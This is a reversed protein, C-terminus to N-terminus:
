GQNEAKGLKIHPKLKVALFAALLIKVCDGPLFPVVCTMLSAAIGNHTLIIYWVTGFAYCLLVGPMMILCLRWFKNAAWKSLLGVVVACILYGIIYGGTPGALVAIGGSLKSFVPVGVAGLLIYATISVAAYKAGLLAGCLNVSFLALNIPILPLPIAIQSCVACLACFLACLMLARTNIKKTKM